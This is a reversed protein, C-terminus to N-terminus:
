FYRPTMFNAKGWGLDVGIMLEHSGSNTNRLPSLTMDFAYGARFRRLSQYELMFVLADSTRYGVGIGLVKAFFFTTNIDVQMPSHPVMKLVASPRFSVNSGMPLIAGAMTFFHMSQKSALLGATPNSTGFYRGALLNPVSFGAFFKPTHFYAGAGARPLLASVDVNPKIPDPDMPHVESFKTKYQMVGANLGLNLFGTGVPLRYAYSLALNSTSTVGLHDQAFMFGVGHRENAIPAHVSINGTAPGGVYGLWQRRLLVTASLAERSGTYAPNYVLQNFMYQSYQADQQAQVGQQAGALTMALLILMWVRKLRSNKPSITNQMKM